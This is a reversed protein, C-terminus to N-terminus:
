FNDPSFPKPLVEDAGLVRAFDLAQSGAMTKCGASMAVIRTMPFRKRMEVITEIGEKVPMFIDVIALDCQHTTLFSIAEAGNEAEASHHGELEVMITLYERVLPNM